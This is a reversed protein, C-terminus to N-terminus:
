AHTEDGGTMVEIFREELLPKRWASSWNLEQTRGYDRLIDLLQKKRGLLEPAMNLEEARQQVIKQLNKLRKRDGQELPPSLLSRDVPPLEFTDQSLLSVIESSYRSLFRSDVREVSRIDDKTFVANDALAQALNFLDVDKVIWSKPKNRSRATKERWYCLKQLINLGSDSLRWANSINTYIEQWNDQSEAVFSNLLLQECEAEFWASMSQLELQAALIERIQILYRVDAAAYFIQNESLPRRLWDSRTEGKEIELNLLERALGQYSISFGLGLFAAAIQTDFIKQPIVGLFTQLLNLDESSSHIVFEIGSDGLLTKFCSWDSINLPDILYCCKDDAIQLLGIRAYFTNTRMFETDIALLKQSSLNTCLSIFSQDDDVYRIPM